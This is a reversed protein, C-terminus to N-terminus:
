FQGANQRGNFRGMALDIVEQETLKDINISTIHTHNEIKVESPKALVSRVIPIAAIAAKKELTDLQDALIARSDFLLRGILTSKGDDVSGATLFRLARHDTVPAAASAQSTHLASM